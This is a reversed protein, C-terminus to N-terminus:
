FSVELKKELMVSIMILNPIQSYNSLYSIIKRRRRRRTRKRM